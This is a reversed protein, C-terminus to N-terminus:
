AKKQWDLSIRTLEDPVGDPMPVPVPPQSGAPPASSAWGLNISTLEDPPESPLAREPLVSPRQLLAFAGASPPPLKAVGVEFISADAIKVMPPPLTNLRIQETATLVLRRATQVKVGLPAIMHPVREVARTLEDLPVQLVFASFVRERAGGGLETMIEVVSVQPDGVIEIRLDGDLWDCATTGLRALVLLVKPGGSSPKAIRSLHDLLERTADRTTLARTIDAEGLDLCRAIHAFGDM